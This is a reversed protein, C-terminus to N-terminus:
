VAQAEVHGVGGDRITDARKFFDATIGAAVLLEKNQENAATLASQLRDGATTLTQAREEHLGVIEDHQAKTYLKGTALMWGLLVIFGILAGVPTLSWLGPLAEM